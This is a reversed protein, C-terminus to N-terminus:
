LSGGLFLDVLPSGNGSRIAGVAALGRCCLWVLLVGEACGFLMGGTRNLTRLVPQRCARNLLGTVRRWLFLILTFSVFWVLWRALTGAVAGGVLAVLQTQNSEIQSDAVASLLGALTSTLEDDGFLALVGQPIPLIPDGTAQSAAIREQLRSSLFQEVPPQLFSAVVPQLLAGLIAAGAFAVVLGLLGSLSNILGRRYGCVVFLLLIGLIVIDYIL